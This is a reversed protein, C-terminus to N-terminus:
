GEIAKNTRNGPANGWAPIFRAKPGGPVPYRKCGISPVIAGFARVMDAQPLAGPDSRISFLFFPQLGTGDDDWKIFVSPPSGLSIRQSIGRSQRPPLRLKVIGPTRRSMTARFTEFGVARCINGRGGEKDKDERPRFRFRPRYRFRFISLSESVSESASCSKSGPDHDAGKSPAAVWLAPEAPPCKIHAEANM